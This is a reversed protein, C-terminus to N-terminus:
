LSGRVICHKMVMHSIIMQIQFIMMDQDAEMFVKQGESLNLCTCTVYIIYVSFFIALRHSLNALFIPTKYNNDFDEETTIHDGAYKYVLNKWASKRGMEFYSLSQYKLLTKSNYKQLYDYYSRTSVKFYRNM